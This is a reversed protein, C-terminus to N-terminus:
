PSTSRKPIPVLARGRHSEIVLHFLRKPPRATLRVAPVEDSGYHNLPDIVIAADSALGLTGLLDGLNGQLPFIPDIMALLRGGRALYASLLAAEGPTYAHRPGIDAVVSCDSPIASLTTPVIARVTYGLTTLALQLRDLGDTEGQLLDGAGPVEHGRLTEVHSYHFHPPGEPVSEGHGTIFCVVDVKRKLVRLTAYAM